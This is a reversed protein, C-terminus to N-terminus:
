LAAIRALIDSQTDPAMAATATMGSTTIGSQEYYYYNGNKNTIVVLAYNFGVPIQTGDSYDPSFTNSTNSYGSLLVLYKQTPFSLYVETNSQNYSTDPVIVSVNTVQSAGRSICDCNVYHFGTCSDFIYFPQNHLWYAYTTDVSTGTASTGPTTNNGQTWTTVSDPNANNGYYLQMPTTSASSQPFGIGYKNAYVTQGNMTAMINIEGGSTLLTDHATTTTRNAIFDAPKYMEVLQLYITGATIINGNADKFSNTYFHLMTNNAGMVITDRGATVSFNQPTPRLGSFLQNLSQKTGSTSKTKKCSLVTILAIIGILTLSLLAKKM